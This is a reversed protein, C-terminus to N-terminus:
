FRRCHPQPGCPGQRGRRYVGASEIAAVFAAADIVMAGSRYGVDVLADCIAAFDKGDHSTLLGLVNEIVIRRPARGESRLGQILKRFGWFASSRAGDLGARDGALSLDQCPPSAWALEAHGPLDATTLRAVVRVVLDERGFNAAYSAAKERDNDNALVCHWSPGLGERVMGGGAFLEYFTSRSSDRLREPPRAPSCPAGAAREAASVSVSASAYNAELLGPDDVLGAAIEGFAKTIIPPYRTVDRRQGTTDSIL